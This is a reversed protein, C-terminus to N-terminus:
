EIGGQDRLLEALELHDGEVALGTPTSGQNGVANVDAGAELLLRAMEVHGGTAAWHLPTRDLYSARAHVDAGAELLVRVAAQQVRADRRRPDHAAARYGLLEQVRLAAHLAGRAVVGM